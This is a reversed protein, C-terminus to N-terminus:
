LAEVLTRGQGTMTLMTQWLESATDVQKRQETVVPIPIHVFNQHWMGLTLNTKGAMGAHCAMHGLMLCYESDGTSAPASRISYSPDLYKLTVDQLGATLREKLFLGIDQLKANGSADRADSKEFLDQGAGEAVVIVAHGRTQLRQEVLRLVEDLKVPHEPILCLSTVGSARAAHVAVFGSHRGMLKVLGIGREASCAEAHAALVVKRAEEVATRFGFSMSTWAIDNDITKPLGVIAISAGRRKGEAALASAGRLTGDGGIVFLLNVGRAQLTDVMEGVDQPGRSSGLYSGATRAISDAKERDLVIPEAGGRSLGKYGYRFGLVQRVGYLELLTLTISRIVDNLGPCLGGCTLVGAVTERPDFFLQARPGAMELSPWPGKWEELERVESLLLTRSADEVFGGARPVESRFRGPGLSEIQLESLAPIRM